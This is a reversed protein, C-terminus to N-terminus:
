SKCIYVNSLKHGLKVTLTQYTRLKHKTQILKPNGKSPHHTHAPTQKAALSLSHTSYKLLSINKDEWGLALVECSLKIM